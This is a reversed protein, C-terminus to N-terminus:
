AAFAVRVREPDFGNFGPRFRPDDRPLLKGRPEVVISECVLKLITRRWHLPRRAWEQAADEFSLAEALLTAERTVAM